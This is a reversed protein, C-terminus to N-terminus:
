SGDYGNIKAAEYIYTFEANQDEDNMPINVARHMMSKFAAMKHQCSHHSENGIFRQTNTPKRFVKFQQNDETRKVQVDLFPLVQYFKISPYQANLLSMIGEIKDKHVIAFM